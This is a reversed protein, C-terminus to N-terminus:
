VVGRIVFDICLVYDGVYLCCEYLLAVILALTVANKSWLRARSQCLILRSLAEFWCARHVLWGQFREPHHLWSKSQSFDGRLKGRRNKKTSLLLLLLILLLLYLLSQLFRAPHRDQ